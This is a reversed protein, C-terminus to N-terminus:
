DSNTGPCLKHMHILQNREYSSKCTEESVYDQVLNVLSVILNGKIIFNWLQLTFQKRGLQVELLLPGPIVKLWNSLIRIWQM